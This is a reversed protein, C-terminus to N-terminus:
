NSPQANVIKILQQSKKLLRKTRDEDIKTDPPLDLLERLEGVGTILDQIHKKERLNPELGQLSEHFYQVLDPRVLKTAKKTSFPDLSTTAVIEFARLWGGLAVLHAIDVDRLMVMEAEVDVQTEALKSKLKDWEGLGSNELLSKTHKTVRMGSGLYKAQKLVEKGVNQLEAIKESQVVLFGDSILIGLNLALISRDRTNVAKYDRKLKDYPLTGLDDLDEFLKKISPTTFENIGFEERVHEDDILDEPVEQAFVTPAFGITLLASSFVLNKLSPLRM